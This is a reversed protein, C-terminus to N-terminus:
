HVWDKVISHVLISDTYVKYTYFIGDLAMTIFELVISEHFLTFIIIIETSMYLYPLTTYPILLQLHETSCTNRECILIITERGKATSVEVTAQKCNLKRELGKATSVGTTAKLRPASAQEGEQPSVKSRGRREYNHVRERVKLSRKRNARLIMNIKSLVKLKRQIKVM